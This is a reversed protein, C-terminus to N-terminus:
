EFKPDPIETVWVAPSKTVGSWLSRKATLTFPSRWRCFPHLKMAGCMIVGFQSWIETKLMLRESGHQTYTLHSYPVILFSHAVIYIVNGFSGYVTCHTYQM